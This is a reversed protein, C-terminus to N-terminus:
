KKGGFLKRKVQDAVVQVPKKERMPRKLLEGDCNPCVASMESTCKECFTCEYSCIYAISVMPTEVSCKECSAKMKLM